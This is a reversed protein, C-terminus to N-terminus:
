RSRTRPRCWWSRKCTSPWRAVPSLRRSARISRNRNFFLPHPLQASVTATEEANLWSIGAGLAFYPAIRMGGSVDFLPGTRYRYDSELHAREQAAAASLVRPVRRGIGSLRRKRLLQRRHRCEETSALSRGRTGAPQQAHSPAVGTLTLVTAALWLTLAASPRTNSHPTMRNGITLINLVVQESRCQLPRLRTGAPILYIVQSKRKPYGPDRGKHELVARRVLNKMVLGMRNWLGM